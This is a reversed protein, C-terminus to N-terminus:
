LIDVLIKKRVDLPLNKVSEIEFEYFPFPNSVYTAGLIDSNLLEVDYLRKDKNIIKGIIYKDPNRKIFSNLQMYCTLDKSYLVYIIDGIKLDKEIFIVKIQM